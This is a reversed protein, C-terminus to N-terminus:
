WPWSYTAVECTVLLAFMLIKLLWPGSPYMPFTTHLSTKSIYNTTTIKYYTGDFVCVQANPMPDRHICPSHPIYLPKPFTIQLQLKTIHVTLYVCMHMLCPNLSTFSTTTTKRSAKWGDTGDDMWDLQLYKTVGWGGAAAIQKNLLLLLLLSRLGVATSYINHLTGSQYGPWKWKIVPGISGLSPLSALEIFRQKWYTIVLTPRTNSVLGFGKQANRQYSHNDRFCIDPKLIYDHHDFLRSYIATPPWTIEFM